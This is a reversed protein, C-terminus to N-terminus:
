RMLMIVQSKEMNQTKLRVIYFGSPVKDGIDNTANWKINYYGPNKYESLLTNVKEGLMNYIIIEIFSSKSIQYSLTTSPNFPNPYNQFLDIQNEIIEEKSVNIFVPGHFTKINNYTVDMIKYWYIEPIIIEDTFSYKHQTRNNNHGELGPNNLYSSILIYDGNEENARYVEFGQNDNESKTRWTLIVNANEFKASLNEIEIPLQIYTGIYITYDNDNEYYKKFSTSEPFKIDGIQSYIWGTEPIDSVITFEGTNVKDFTCLGNSDTICTQIKIDNADYLIINGESLYPENIDYEGNRNLDNYKRVSININPHNEVTISFGPQDNIRKGNIYFCDSIMSTITLEYDSANELLFITQIKITQNPEIDGFYTTLDVWELFLSTNNIGNAKPEGGIYKASESFSNYLPLIDITDTSTNKISIIFFIKNDKDPIPQDNTIQINLGSDNAFVNTCFVVILLILCTLYISWRSYLIKNKKIYNM